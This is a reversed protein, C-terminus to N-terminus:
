VDTDLNTALHKKMKAVYRDVEKGDQSVEDDLDIQMKSGDENKGEQKRLSQLYESDFDTKKHSKGDADLILKTKGGFPGEPRIKRM